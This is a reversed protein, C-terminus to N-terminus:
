ANATSKKQRDESSLNAELAWKGSQRSGRKRQMKQIGKTKTKEWSFDSRQQEKRITRKSWSWGERAKMRSKGGSGWCLNGRREKKGGSGVKETNTKGRVDHSGNRKM